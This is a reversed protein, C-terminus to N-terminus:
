MSNQWLASFPNQICFVDESTPVDHLIRLIIIGLNMFCQPHSNFDIEHLFPRSTFLSSPCNGCAVASQLSVTHMDVQNENM